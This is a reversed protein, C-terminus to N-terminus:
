KFFKLKSARNTRDKKQPENSEKTKSNEKSREREKNKEKDKKEDNKGNPKNDIDKRKENTLNKLSLSKRISKSRSHQSIGNTIIGNGNSGFGNSNQHARSDFSQRKPQFTTPKPYYQDIKEAWFQKQRPGLPLNTSVRDSFPTNNLILITAVDFIPNEITGHFHTLAYEFLSLELQVPGVKKLVVMNNNAGLALSKLILPINATHVGKVLSENPKFSSEKSIFKKNQYKNIIFSKREEISCIPTIKTKLTVEAEWYSNAFGNAVHYLLEISERSEFAKIDLTLSRIKSIHTGLSRHIGSCDICMVMLLNISIWDVSKTSGCDCCILNSQDINRVIGLPSNGPINLPPDVNPTYSSKRNMSNSKRKISNSNRLILDDQSRKPNSNNRSIQHQQQQNSGHIPQNGYSSVISTVSDKSIPKPREHLTISSNNTSSSTHPPANNTNHTPDPKLISILEDISKISQLKGKFLNQEIKYNNFNSYYDLAKTIHLEVNSNSPKKNFDQQLFVALNHILNRILYGNRFENLYNFYNLRNLEFQIRKNLSEENNYNEDNSSNEIEWNKFEKLQDNYLKKKNQLLKFDSNYFLLFPTTINKMILNANEINETSKETFIPILDNIIDKLITGNINSSYNNLDSLSSSLNSRTIALNRESEELAQSKKIINKMLSKFNILNEEIEFLKNRFTIGDIMFEYQPDKLNILDTKPQNSNQSHLSELDTKNYDEKIKPISGSESIKREKNLQMNVDDLYVITKFIEENNGLITIYLKGIFGQLKDFDIKIDFFNDIPNIIIQNSDNKSHINPNLSKEKLEVVRSLIEDVLIKSDNANQIVIKLNNFITFHKMNQMTKFDDLLDLSLGFTLQVQDKNNLKLLFPWEDSKVNQVFESLPTKPMLFSGNSGDIAFIKNLFSIKKLILGNSLLLPAQNHNKDLSGVQGM